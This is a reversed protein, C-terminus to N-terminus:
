RARAPRPPQAEEQVVDVEGEGQRRRLPRLERRDDELLVAGRRPPRPLARPAHEQRDRQTMPFVEIYWQMGGYTDKAAFAALYAQGSGRPYCLRRGAMQRPRRDCLTKDANVAIDFSAERGALAADFVKASAVLQQQLLNRVSRESTWLLLAAPRSAEMEHIVLSERARGAAAQAGRTPAGDEDPRRQRVRAPLPAGPTQIHRAAGNLALDDLPSPVGGPDHHRRSAARGSSPQGSLERVVDCQNLLLANANKLRHMDLNMELRENELREIRKALEPM